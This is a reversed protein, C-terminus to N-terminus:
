CSGVAPAAFIREVLLDAREAVKLSFPGAETMRVITQGNADASVCGAVGEREWYPM